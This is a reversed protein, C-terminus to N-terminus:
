SVVWPWDLGCCGLVLNCSFHLSPCPCHIYTLTRLGPLLLCSFLIRPFTSFNLLELFFHLGERTILSLCIVNEGEPIPLFSPCPWIYLCPPLLPSAWMQGAKPPLPFGRGGLVEKGVGERRGDGDGMKLSLKSIQKESERDSPFNSSVPM